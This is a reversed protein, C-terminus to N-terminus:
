KIYQRIFQTLHEPSKVLRNVMIHRERPPLEGLKMVIKHSMGSSLNIESGDKFRIPHYGKREVNKILQVMINHSRIHDFNGKSFDYMTPDASKYEGRPFKREVLERIKM